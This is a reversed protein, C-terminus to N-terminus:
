RDDLHNRGLRYFTRSLGIIILVVAVIVATWLLDVPSWSSLPVSLLAM